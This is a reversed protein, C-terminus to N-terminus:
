NQPVFLPNPLYQTQLELILISLFLRSVIKMNCAISKLLNTSEDRRFGAVKMSTLTQFQFGM